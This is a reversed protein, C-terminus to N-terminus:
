TIIENGDQVEKRGRGLKQEKCIKIQTYVKEEVSM